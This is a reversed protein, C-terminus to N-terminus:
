NKLMEYAISGIAADIAKRSRYSRLWLYLWAFLAAVAPAIVAPIAWFPIQDPLQMIRTLETAVTGAVGGPLARAGTGPAAAVAAERAGAARASGQRDAARRHRQVQGSAGDLRDGLSRARRTVALTSVGQGGHGYASVLH